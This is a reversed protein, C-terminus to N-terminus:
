CRNEVWCDGLPLKSTPTTNDKDQHHHHTETDITPDVTTNRDEEVEEDSWNGASDWNDQRQRPMGDEEASSTAQTDPDLNEMRCDVPPPLEDTSTSNQSDDTTQDASEQGRTDLNIITNRDEEVEEDSWNGASDWNDRREENQPGSNEVWCDGLPLKSTPTTNDKDQHHHHTEADITPDVTGRTPNNREWCDVPPTKSPLATAWEDESDTSEGNEQHQQKRRTKRQRPVARTPSEMPLHDCPLLMNRHLIRTKSQPKCEPVVEYVVRAEDKVSVVKYIEQEWYSRLKGPGGKERVNRVLVRDGVELSAYKIKNTRKRSKEKRRASNEAAIRHAEKMSIKWDVLRQNGLPEPDEELLLDIPLRPNRGFLLYFPSYGTSEQKTCNYAHIVQNLSDKWKTKLCEPLTRLMQLLTRNMREVQGNGEPHYSTTRSRSIGYMKELSHFLKNEFEKGQDHHIKAPAGFRLIFDQFLHKAATAASKNKTAYAQSFRSFNNIIVLIYEFGGSSKELHVFDIQVLEFPATATLEQQPARFKQNPRKAKICRCVETIHHRIEEMMRPWFFRTVALAHTREPGLHGMEEHLHKFILPKMSQPVVVQKGKRLIGDKGVDLRAFSRMLGKTTITEGERQDTTPYKALQKYNLIRQIAPDEEQAKRIGKAGIINKRDPTPEIDELIGTVNNCAVWAEGQNLQNAAGAMFASIEEFSLKETCKDMYRDIDMPLRSMADADKNTRGPRYKIDFHFESLENLWRMTTANLKASSTVYTLPNYDTYVTFSPAYYLYDRFM